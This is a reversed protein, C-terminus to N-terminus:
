ARQGAKALNSEVGAEFHLYKETAQTLDSYYGRYSQPLLAAIQYMIEDTIQQSNQKNLREGHLDIVFPNGVRLYFDTRKLRRLNKWTHEGGFQAFPLVPAASRVALLAVGAKGQQLKADHSRTGEPSMALMYGEKLRDMSEKMATLDGEGRRVPVIRYIWYLLRFIPNQWAEVKAMGTVKRPYLHSLIVPVELSTIHNAVALLAGQPPVRKLEEAHVRLLLVVLIRQVLAAVPLLPNM